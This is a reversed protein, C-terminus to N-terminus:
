AETVLVDGAWWHRRLLLRHHLLVAGFPYYGATIGKSVLMLDPEIGYQHVAFWTGTRGFGTVIEDLVLLIEHRDCIARLGRWYAPPTDQYGGPWGFPDAYLAAITSPDESVLKQEIQKLIEGGRHIQKMSLKGLPM